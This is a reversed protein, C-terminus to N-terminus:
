GCRPCQTTAPRCGPTPWSSGPQWHTTETAVRLGILGGWDQGLLTVDRLGLRDVVAERVWEVHRAYTHDSPLAPKDSRGFGVLDLAVARLGREALRAMVHRYLYSWTPEGHLMLVVDGDPPGAAYTAIRLRGGEADAVDVFQVDYPFADLTKMFREAPTRIIDMLGLTGGFPTALPAGDRVDAPHGVAM